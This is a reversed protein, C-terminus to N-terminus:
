KSLRRFSGLSRHSSPANLLHLYTPLDVVTSWSALWEMRHLEFGQNITPHCALGKYFGQRCLIDLYKLCRYCLQNGVRNSSACGGCNCYRVAMIQSGELQCRAQRFLFVLRVWCERDLGCMECWTECIGSPFWWVDLEGGGNM